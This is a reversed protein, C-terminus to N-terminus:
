GKNGGETRRTDVVGEWDREIIEQRTKLKGDLGEIKVEIGIIVKELLEM